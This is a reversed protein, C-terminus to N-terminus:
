QTKITVFFSSFIIIVGIVTIISLHTGFIVRDWILAFAPEVICLFGAKSASVGNQIGMSLFSIAGVQTILAGMISISYVKISNPIVINGSLILYLSIYTLGVLSTYFVIKLGHINALSSHEQALVYIAFTIASLIGLILGKINLMGGGSILMLGVVMLISAMVKWKDIKEKYLILSIGAVMLPYTFNLLSVLGVSIYYTAASYLLLTAINGMGLTSIDFLEKPKIRFNQKTIILALGSIMISFVLRLATIIYVSLNYEKLLAVWVGSLSFCIASMVIYISSM